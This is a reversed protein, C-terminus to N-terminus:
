QKGDPVASAPRRPRKAGNKKAATENASQGNASQGNASQGNTSQGNAGHGSAGHGNAKAAKTDHGNPKAGAGNADTLNEDLDRLTSALEELSNLVVNLITRERENIGRYVADIQTSLVKGVQSNRYEQGRERLVSGFQNVVSLVGYLLDTPY